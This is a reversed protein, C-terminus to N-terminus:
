VKPKPKSMKAKNDSIVKPKDTQFISLDRQSQTKFSFPGSHEDRYSCHDDFILKVAYDAKSKNEKSCYKISIEPKIISESLIDQQEKESLTAWLKDYSSKTEEFDTYIRAAISNLNSFYEEAATKLSM